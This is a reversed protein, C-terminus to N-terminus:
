PCREFLNGMRAVPLFVEWMRVAIGMVNVSPISWTALAKSASPAATRTSPRSSESASAARTQHRVRRPRVRAACGALVLCALAATVIRPARTSKRGARGTKTIGTRPM